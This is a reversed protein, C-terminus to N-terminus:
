FKYGVFLFSVILNIMLSISLYMMGGVVVFLEIIIDVNIKFLIYFVFLGVFWNKDFNYNVGVILVLVWLLSLVVSFKVSIVVGNIYKSFIICQFNNSLEINDYWVYIVGVGVFFCFISNVDGFYYKVVIVLSWQKVQGIQGVGVLMGIGDFKFILLIGLDVILLFNDMLFYIFVIGLIDVSNVIVGFGVILGVGLGDNKCLIESFDQFVLYFWGFNIINSGVIQVMVLVVCVVM